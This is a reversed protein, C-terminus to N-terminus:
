RNKIRGSIRYRYSLSCEGVPARFGESILEYQKTIYGRTDEPLALSEGERASFSLSSLDMDSFDPYGTKIRAIESSGRGDKHLLVKIEANSLSDTKLVASSHVTSKELGPSGSDDRPFLMRYRVGHNGFSYFYPHIAGGMVSLYEESDFDQMRELYPPPVGRKDSNFVFIEGLDTGFLLLDGLAKIETPPHLVGGTREETPYVSVEGEPRKVYYELGGEGGRSYVTESVEREPTDSLIYPPKAVSSYRYKVSDGTYSGVGKVYYWEYSYDGMYSFRERSDGLFIEGGASLVLYGRWQTIRIDEPDIALLRRSVAGSRCVLGGYGGASNKTLACLGLSSIFLEEGMFSVAEGLRSTGGQFYERPYRRDTETGEPKHIFIGGEGVGSLCAFLRDGGPVLSTVRCGGLSDYIYNECSFYLPLDGGDKDKGSYFIYGPLRPNGSLFIRGDFVASVTCSLVTEEPSLGSADPFIDTPKFRGKIMLARGEIYNRDAVEVTLSGDEPSFSYELAEDDLTVEELALVEGLVPLSLKAATYSINFLLSRDEYEGRNELLSLDDESGSFYIDRLSTCGNFASSGFRRFGDGLYLSSLSHCGEFCYTGIERTCGALVAEELSTCGSFARHGVLEVGGIMIVSTIATNGSFAEDAIESVKFRVGGLTTYTPICVTGGVDESVGSLACTRRDYDTIIYRLGPSEFAYEEPAKMRFSQYFKDTLLNRSEFPLADIHTTPIYPLCEGEGLEYASGDPTLIVTNEGDFIYLREGIREATSKIDRLGQFIPARSGVSDIESLAFRFLNEASHIIVYEEGLYKLSYIGNIRGYSDFVHRFGVISELRGSGEYDVYMNELASYRNESEGSLDVGRLRGYSKIRESSSKKVAAM